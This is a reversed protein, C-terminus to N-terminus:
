GHRDSRLSRADHQEERAAHEAAGNQRRDEPEALGSLRFRWTRRNGRGIAHSPVEGARAMELVRRRTISLFEAAKNPDVFPENESM